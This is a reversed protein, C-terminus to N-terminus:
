FQAPVNMMSCRKNEQFFLIFEYREPSVEVVEHRDRLRRDLQDVQRKLEVIKEHLSPLSREADRQISRELNRLM